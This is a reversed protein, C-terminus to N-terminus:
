GEEDGGDGGQDESPYTWRYAGEYDYLVGDHCEPESDKAVLVFEGCTSYVGTTPQSFMPIGEEDMGVYVPAHAVCRGTRGCGGDMDEQWYRCEECRAMPPLVRYTMEKGADM